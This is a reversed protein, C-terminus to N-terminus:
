SKGSEERSEMNEFIGISSPCSYREFGDKLRFCLYFDDDTRKMIEIGFIYHMWTM